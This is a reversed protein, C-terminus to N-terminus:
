SGVAGQRRGAGCLAASVLLLLTHLPNRLEHAAVALLNDRAEIQARLRAIEAHLEAIQPEHDGHCGETALEEAIPDM